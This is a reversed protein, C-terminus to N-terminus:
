NLLLLADVVEAELTNSVLERLSLRSASASKM